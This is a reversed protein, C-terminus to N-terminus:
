GVELLPTQALPAHRVVDGVLGLLHVRGERRRLLLALDIQLDLAALVEQALVRLLARNLLLPVRLHPLLHLLLLLLPQLPENGRLFVSLLALLLLFFLLLLLFPLPFFM